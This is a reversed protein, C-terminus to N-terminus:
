TAQQLAARVKELISASDYPKKVVHIASFRPPITGGEGYGTAFIFPVNLSLLLDAIPLSTDNGLDVDLIAVSPRKVSIQLLGDALSSSTAVENAGADLLTAQLDMAILIQDEVILIHLDSLDSGVALPTALPQGNPTSV